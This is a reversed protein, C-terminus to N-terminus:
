SARSLDYVEQARLHAPNLNPVIVCYDVGNIEVVPPGVPKVPAKLKEIMAAVGHLSKNLQGHNEYSDDEDFGHEHLEYEGFDSECIGVEEIKKDLLDQIISEDVQVEGNLHSIAGAEIVESRNLSIDAHYSWTKDVSQEYEYHMVVDLHEEEWDDDEDREFVSPDVMSKPVCFVGGIDRAYHQAIVPNDAMAQLTKNDLLKFARGDTENTM